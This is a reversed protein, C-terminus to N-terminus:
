ARDRETDLDMMAKAWDDATALFRFPDPADGNLLIIEGGDLDPIKEEPLVEEAPRVSLFMVGSLEDSGREPADSM